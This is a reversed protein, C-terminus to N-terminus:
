VIKSKMMFEAADRLFSSLDRYGLKDAGEYYRKREDASVRVGVMVSPTAERPARGTKRM